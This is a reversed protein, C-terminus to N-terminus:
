FESLGKEKEILVSEYTTPLFQPVYEACFRVCARPKYGIAEVPSM